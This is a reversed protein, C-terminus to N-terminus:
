TQDSMFIFAIPLCSFLRLAGVCCPGADSLCFGNDVYCLMACFHDKGVYFSMNDSLM